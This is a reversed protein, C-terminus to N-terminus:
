ICNLYPFHPILGNVHDFDPGNLDLPGRWYHVGQTTSGL